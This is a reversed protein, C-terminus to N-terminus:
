NLQVRALSWHLRLALQSITGEITSSRQNIACNAHMVVSPWGPRELVLIWFRERPGFVCMFEGAAEETFSNKMLVGAPESDSWKKDFLLRATLFPEAREKKIM